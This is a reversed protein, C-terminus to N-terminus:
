PERIALTGNAQMTPMILMDNINVHKPRSAVFWAAEAIDEALLPEIGDYVAAAREEDGKFRVKSFETEVMGPHIATVKIHDALLDIRMGKTLADVAHKTACYVNGNPYVEKGAISGLNIIHGTQRAVMGPVVARTVYLLGKVNTDIMRDWDGIDGTQIPDLGQSLGANNILVDVQKWQEPLNNFATFVEDADRVDLALLHVKTGFAA